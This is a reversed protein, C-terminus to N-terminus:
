SSTVEFARSPPSVMIQCERSCYYDIKCKSCRTGALSGCVCCPKSSMPAKQSGKPTSPLSNSPACTVLSSSSSIKSSFSFLFFTRFNGRPRRKERKRKRVGREGNCVRASPNMRRRCCSQPKAAQSPKSRKSSECAISKNRM